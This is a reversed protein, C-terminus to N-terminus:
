FCRERGGPGGLLQVLAAADRAEEDPLQNTIQALNGVREIINDVRGM